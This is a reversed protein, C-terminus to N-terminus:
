RREFKLLDIVDFYVVTQRRWLDEDMHLHGFIWHKYHSFTLERVYELYENLKKEHPDISYFISMTESPATHTLIYDVKYDNAKLNLLGEEYEDDSPLEQEWYSIGPIRMHKDRSYAGGFTFFKFGYINFVQGRTMHFIKGKGGSDRALVHVKGGCWMEMPRDYILDFNDHNGDVVCIYYPLKALYKLFRREADSGNFMYGWDGVVILVDGQKLDRNYAYKKNKMRAFDGHCDGTVYIKHEDEM